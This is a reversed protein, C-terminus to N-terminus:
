KQGRRWAARLQRHWHAHVAHGPHTENGALKAVRRGRIDKKACGCKLWPSKLTGWKPEGKAPPAIHVNHEAKGGATIVARPEIRIDEWRRTKKGPPSRRQPAGGKTRTDPDAPLGEMYFGINDLASKLNLRHRRGNGREFYNVAQALDVIAHILFAYPSSM